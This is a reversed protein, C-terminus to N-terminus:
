QGSPDGPTPSETSAPTAALSTADTPAPTPTPEPTPTLTTGDVPLHCGYSKGIKAQVQTGDLYLKVLTRYNTKIKTDQVVVGDAKFEAIMYGCRRSLHATVVATDLASFGGTKVQHPM